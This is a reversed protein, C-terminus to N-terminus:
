DLPWRHASDPSDLWFEQGDPGVTLGFRERPPRGLALWQEHAAEAISWLRRPGGQRVSHRSYCAWSGDPHALWTESRGDSWALVHPLSLGAFFEFKEAPRLLQTASLDTLRPLAQRGRVKNLLDSVRPGRHARLPMFRGDDALVRGTAHREGDPTLKVLGAGIQRNLTTVIHGGPVTQEVWALPITSVSCTGLVRDYPANAPCGQLGDTTVCTPEYGCAALHKAARAAIAPDVDITTVRREGLRHCLLAANYGTGAGVELVKDGTRVDLAALMIAMISPESSSCTPVGKVPGALAATRRSEDGDLQTIAVRNRYVTRLWNPDAETMLTWSGNSQQEFAWPLFAHRPVDAFAARWGPDLLLGEDVLKDVLRRRLRHAERELDPRM